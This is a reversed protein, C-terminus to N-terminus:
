ANAELDSIERLNEDLRVRGLVARSPEATVSTRVKLSKKVCDIERLVGIGLFKGQSDHLGLLLGQNAQQNKGLASEITLRKLSWVKVKAGALYKAYGLERLSKRKERGRLKATLPTCITVTRFKSLASLLPALEDGQQICFVVDPAIMEALRSKYAVAEEGIVWGDTNVIVFDVATKSIEAKMLALGEVTRSSAESPSTAGVFFADEAKVGFLDTVPKTVHAYSVTCPPGIDSQGVDGDLIKVTRKEGILRNVLYTCLSTKGSDVGGIVMATACPKQLEQLLDFAKPWSPPVTSGEVEAAAANEGLTIDFCAAQEVLFPLRKGERIVIKNKDRIQSGFVEVKGSVVAVSAPGDVLLTKGM